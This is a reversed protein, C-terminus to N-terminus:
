PRERADPVRAAPPREPGAGVAAGLADLAAGFAAWDGRRLAARLTAYLARARAIRGEGSADNEVPPAAGTLATALTAGRRVSDTVVTVQALAPLGDAGVNYTPQVFALGGRVPVARVRGRVLSGELRRGGAPDVLTADASRVTPGGLAGRAADLVDAWRPGASGTPLWRATPAAGGYGVVLGDVRGAPDLLPLTWAPVVATPSPDDASVSSGAPAAGTASRGRPRAARAPPAALLIPSRHAVGLTSDGGEGGPIRRVTPTVARHVGFQALAWAQVLLADGAPPIGAALAPALTTAPTFLAPFRAIWSRAVPDPDPAAVLRVAGSQASVIAIAAHRLYSRDEGAVAYHQSLPYWASASYLHLVWSLSDGVLAPTITHGQAFFPALAAVRERVDRRLVIEPADMQAVASSFALRLDRRAWAHALRVGWTRLPDGAVQGEADGVIAPGVADPHVLATVRQGGDALPLTPDAAVVPHGAEDGRLADLALVTWSGVVEDARGSAREVAVAAMGTPGAQWGVDGVVTGTRRGREVARALVAPDWVPVREALGALSDTAYGPPLPLVADVAFARQTFLARTAAYAPEMRLQRETPVLRAALVRAAGRATFSAVVVVTVAWFALRLQGVWGARLVVAACVATLVALGFRVPIGARADLYTFAGAAGSGDTLLAYADLRHGWALLLLLVTGLATAHRRVHGSMRLRGRQWRLGPTLAYLAGTLAACVLFVFLAWVYAANELPLWYVYYGVDHGLHPEVDGFARGHRVLELLTWDDAPVAVLAGLALAALAAGGLLRQGPIKEGIELDGLRRPLVLTEVSAAVGTLNVFIALAAVAACLGRLLALSELRGRWVAEGGEGLAALWRQEVVAEALARGALLLVAALLAFTVWRRRTV